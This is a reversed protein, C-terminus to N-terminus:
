KTSLTNKFEEITLWRGVQLSKEEYIARVVPNAMKVKNGSLKKVQELYQNLKQGLTQM